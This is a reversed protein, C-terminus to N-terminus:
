GESMVGEETMMKMPGSLLQNLRTAPMTLYLVDRDRLTHTLLEYGHIRAGGSEIYLPVLDASSAVAQISQDCFPHNPTVLTAIAVWLLDGAQGNGLIRGGLAAAAFAPAALDMPSMVHNFEFVQHVQQAFDADQTRVVIRLHPALSRATLSIELNAADESTVVLLATAQDVHVTELTSALSADAIIVPVKRARVAHLFRNHSDHEVVVVPHGLDQLHTVIRYGVGGLGCVVFHHQRPLRARNWLDHFHAGLIFDNLLAYCIGIVGAGVLMMVATFVKVAPAADEAVQEQGGAGTIMGVSFYLADVPSTNLNTWLYTFTAVGITVLLALLVLLTARGRSSFHDLVVLVRQWFHLTSRRRHVRQQRPRSALVLRDGLQLVEGNVVASVLDQHSRSSHYYILLRGRDDWLEKLPKGYWPHDADIVEEYMPWTMDALQIQGIARNGRAAFAFLPAALAAVSLSVHDPLTHDLRDGLSTNFLRNIIRIRPNLVRAQTLIALNLADDATSLLLTHASEIGAARLVKASRLDGVVIQGEAGPLETRSIGVVDAHQARLLSFILYGTRGLGCVIIKPTEIPRM